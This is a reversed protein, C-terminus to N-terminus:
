ATVRDFVLTMALDKLSADGIARTTLTFRDGKNFVKLSNSSTMVGSTNITLVGFTSGNHQMDMAYLASPNTLAKIVSGVLGVPLSIKQPAVFTILADDNFLGGENWISVDYTEAILESLRAAEDRGLFKPIKRDKFLFVPDRIWSPTGGGKKYYRYDVNSPNTMEFVGGVTVREEFDIIDWSVGDHSGHVRLRVTGWSDLFLRVGGL